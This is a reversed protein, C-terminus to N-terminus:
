QPAEKFRVYTVGRPLLHVGESNIHYANATSLNCLCRPMVSTAREGFQFGAFLRAYSEAEEKHTVFIGTEGHKAIILHKM